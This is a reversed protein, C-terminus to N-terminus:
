WNAFTGADPRWGLRLVDGLPGATSRGRPHSRNGQIARRYAEPARDRLDPTWRYADALSAWIFSDGPAMNAAQSYSQAAESYRKLAYYATGLNLFARASPAISVSKQFQEVAEAYRGMRGYVAGLNSHALYSDPMLEIARRFGLEAEPLRDRNFYFRGLSIQGFADGPRLEIGKKFTSEAEQNKLMAQYVNGLDRFAQANTPEYTLAAQLERAASASDGQALRIQGMTIHVAALKGNLQLAREGDGAAESLLAPDKQIKYKQWLAEALGAWALAYQQDKAVADRFATAALDLNEVRDYRLLYGRGELYFRTAVPNSSDGAQLSQRAGANIEVELMRVLKEAEAALDPQSADITESRLVALALPDELNVIVQPKDGARVVSGTMILNAGLRKAADGPTNIAKARVEDPSVVVVLSGGVRELRTLKSTVVDVLGDVFAQEKPDGGVNRFPLVALRKETPLSRSQLVSVGSLARARLWPWSWSVVAAAIM